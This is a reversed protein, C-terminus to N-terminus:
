KRGECDRGEHGDLVAGGLRRWYRRCWTLRKIRSRGAKALVTQVILKPRAKASVESVVGTVQELEAEGESV